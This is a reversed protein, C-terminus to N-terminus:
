VIKRIGAEVERPACPTMDAAAKDNVQAVSKKLTATSDAERLTAHRRVALFSARIPMVVEERLHWGTILFLVIVLRSLWWIAVRADDSRWRSRTPSKLGGSFGPPKEPRLRLM